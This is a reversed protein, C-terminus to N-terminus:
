CARFFLMTYGDPGPAKEMAMDNITAFVEEETILADLGALHQLMPTYGLAQLNIAAAREKPTGILTNFFDWAIKLKDEQGTIMCDNHEIVQIYNKRRRSSAKIHFFKTGTDGLRIWTVRSRQRWMARELAVIGLCRVKLFNRFRHEQPTLQRVDRAADLRFILENVIDLTKTMHSCHQSHWRKLAKGTNQLRQQLILFPDRSSVPSAWAAGVVEEFGEM